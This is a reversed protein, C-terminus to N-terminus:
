TIEAKDYPERKEQRRTRGGGGGKILEYSAQGKKLEERQDRKGTLTRDDVAM